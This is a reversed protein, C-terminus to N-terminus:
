LNGWVVIDMVENTIMQRLGSIAKVETYGNPLVILDKEKSSLSMNM